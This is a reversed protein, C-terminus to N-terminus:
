VHTTTAYLGPQGFACLCHLETWTRTPELVTVTFGTWPKGKKIIHDSLDMLHGFGCPNCFVLWRFSVLAGHKSAVELPGWLWWSSRRSSCSVM